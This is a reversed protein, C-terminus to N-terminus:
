VLLKGRYPLRKIEPLTDEDPETQGYGEDSEEGEGEPLRGGLVANHERVELLTIRAFDDFLQLAYVNGVLKGVLAVGNINRGITHGFGSQRESM